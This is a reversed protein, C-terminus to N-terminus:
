CLWWSGKELVLDTERGNESEAFFFICTVTRLYNIVKACDKCAHKLNNIRTVPKTRHGLWAKPTWGRRMPRAPGLLFIFILYTIKKFYKVTNQDINTQIKINYPYLDPILIGPKRWFYFFYKKQKWAYPWTERFFLLLFDYQIKLFFNKAHM